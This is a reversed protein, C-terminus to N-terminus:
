AAFLQKIKGMFGSQKEAEAIAAEQQELAIRSAEHLAEEDLAEGLPTSKLMDYLEQETGCMQGDQQFLIRASNLMFIKDQKNTIRPWVQQIEIKRDVDAHLKARQADSLNSNGDIMAHLQEKEDAHLEHDAWAFAIIGEYAAIRSDPVDTM